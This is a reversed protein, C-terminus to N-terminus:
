NHINILFTCAAKTTSFIGTCIAQNDVAIKTPQHLLQSPANSNAATSNIANTLETAILRKTMDTGQTTDIRNNALQNIIKANVNVPIASRVSGKAIFIANDINSLIVKRIVPEEQKIVNFSNGQISNTTYITIIVNNNTPVAASTIIRSANSKVDPVPLEAYAKTHFAINQSCSALLLAITFVSMGFILYKTM